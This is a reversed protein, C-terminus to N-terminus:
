NCAGSAARVDRVAALCVGTALGACVFGAWPLLTFNTHGPTPRLYWQLPAPLADIWPGHARAARDDGDRRHGRAGARVRAAAGAAAGWLLAAVVLAPGMVNLVDVKLLDVPSGIGLVFGQFRFLFALGFMTLGRMVLGRASRRQARRRPGAEGRGVAGLGLGALYLFAPAALGGLFTAWYFVTRACDAERTWADVVHALVM